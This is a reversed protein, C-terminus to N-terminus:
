NKSEDARVKEKNRSKESAELRRKELSPSLPPFLKQMRACLQEVQTWEGLERGVRLAEWGAKKRWFPDGSEDYLVDLYYNFATLLGQRPESASAVVMKEAVLGCGFKAQGLATRSAAPINTVQQYAELARLYYTADLAGLQYFTDGMAGWADAAVETAPNEKQIVDFVGAAQKLNAMLNTPNSEPQLRLASGYAFRAPSILEKPCNALNATLNTFHTRAESYGSRGIAARGAMMCAEAFLGNTPWYHYLTSFQKEASVYDGQRFFYDGLWFEAAPVLANTPFRAVFNTFLTFANTEPEANASARAHYFEVDPLLVHNTFRASWAEYKTVAGPWDAMLEAVRASALDVEPRLISDPFRTIFEAFLEAAREPRNADAFGQASLLLSREALPAAKGQQLLQRMAEEAGTVDNLALCARELQYWGPSELEAAAAPFRGATTLAAHYSDRAAAFDRMAYAADGVKFQAVALLESPELRAAAAAFAPRSLAPQNSLWFCWGRNLQAQGLLPSDPSRAVLRDLLLLAQDLHNTAQSLALHQKLHLEALSLLAVDAAPTNTSRDLFAILERMAENVEGRSLHLEARKGLAERQREVPTTASLNQGYAEIAKSVEGLREYILGRLAWSEATLEPQSTLGALLVLNTSLRDAEEPRGASLAIRTLLQQRQWTQRADLVAGNLSEVAVQAAASDNRELGAQASLFMGHIVLGNGPNNTAAQYFIGAPNALLEIVRPWDRLRTRAEAEGVSAELRYVSTPYNRALDAFADAAAANSGRQLQAEGIWYLYRDTQSGASVKSEELLPIAEGVRDLKFLAQARYLVAEIALTSSPFKEVFASFQREARDWITDEFASKAEKFARNEAATNAEARSVMGGLWFFALLLRLANTM